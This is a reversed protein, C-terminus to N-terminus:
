GILGENRSVAGLRRVFFCEKIYMCFSFILHFNFHFNLYLNLYFILMSILVSRRAKM